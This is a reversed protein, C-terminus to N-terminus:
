SEGLLWTIIEEEKDTMLTPIKNSNEEEQLQDISLNTVYDHPMLLAQKQIIQLEIPSIENDIWTQLEPSIVFQLERLDWLTKKPHYKQILNTYKKLEQKLEEQEQYYSEAKWTMKFLAKEADYEILQYKSNHLVEMLIYKILIILHKLPPNINYDYHYHYLYLQFEIDHNKHM